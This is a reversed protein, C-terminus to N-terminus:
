SYIRLVEKWLQSFYTTLSASLFFIVLINLIDYQMEWQIDLCM